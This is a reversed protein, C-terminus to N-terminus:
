QLGGFESEYWSVISLLSKSVENYNSAVVSFSDTLENFITSRTVETTYIYDSNSLLRNRIYGSVLDVKEKDAGISNTLQKFNDYYKTNRLQSEINYPMYFMCDYSLSSYMENNYNYLKEYNLQLTGYDKYFSSAKITEISNMLFDKISSVKALEDVPLKDLKMKSVKEELLDINEKFKKANSYDDYNITVEYNVYENHYLNVLILFGSILLCVLLLSSSLLELFEGFIKKLNNM